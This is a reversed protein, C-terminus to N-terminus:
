AVAESEKRAHPIEADHAAFAPCDLQCPLWLWQWAVGGTWLIVVPQVDHERDGAGFASYTFVKGAQAVFQYPLAVTNMRHPCVRNWCARMLVGIVAPWGWSRNM